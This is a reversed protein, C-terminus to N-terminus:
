KRHGAHAPMGRTMDEGGDKDLRRLERAAAYQCDV